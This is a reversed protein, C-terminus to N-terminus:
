TLPPVEYGGSCVSVRYLLTVCIPNYFPFIFLAFLFYALCHTARVLRLLISPQWLPQQTLGKRRRPYCISCSVIFTVEKSVECLMCPGTSIWCCQVSLVDAAGKRKIWIKTVFSVWLLIQKFICLEVTLSYRVFLYPLNYQLIKTTSSSLNNYPQLVEGLREWKSPRLTLLYM